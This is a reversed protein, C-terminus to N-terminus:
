SANQRLVQIRNQIARRVFDFGFMSCHKSLWPEVTCSPSFKSVAKEAGRLLKEDDKSVQLEAPLRGLSKYFTGTRETRTKKKLSSAVPSHDEKILKWVGNQDSLLGGECTDLGSATCNLADANRRSQQLLSNKDLDRELSLMSSLYTIECGYVRDNEGSVMVPARPVAQDNIRPEGDKNTPWISAVIYDEPLWNSVSHRSRFVCPAWSEEPSNDSNLAADRLPALRDSIDKALEHHIQRLQKTQLRSVLETCLGAAVCCMHPRPLSM